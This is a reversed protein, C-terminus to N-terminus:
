IRGLLSSSAGGGFMFGPRFVDGKRLGDYISSSVDLGNERAFRVNPADKQRIQPGAVPAPAARPPPPPPPPAGGGFWSSSAAGGNYVAEARPPLPMPAGGGFWSSSAAGGNYVPQPVRPPAPARQSPDFYRNAKDEIWNAGYYGPTYVGYYGVYYVIKSIFKVIGFGLKAILMVVNFGEKVLWWIGWVLTQLKALIEPSSDRAGELFGPLSLRVQEYLSPIRKFLLEALADKMAKLNLREQLTPNLKRNLDEIRQNLEYIELDLAEGQEENVSSASEKEDDVDVAQKAAATIQQPSMRRTRELSEIQKVENAIKEFLKKHSLEDSSQWLGDVASAAGGFGPLYTQGSAPTSLNLSPWSDDIASAAGGDGSLYGRDSAPTSLKNKRSLERMPGLSDIASAAGGDGSLNGRSSSPISLNKRSLERMPGLSDIVSPRVSLELQLNDNILAREVVPTRESTRNDIHWLTINEIPIGRNVSMFKKIDHFRDCPETGLLIREDNYHVTIQYPKSYNCEIRSEFNFLIQSVPDICEGGTERCWETLCHQHYASGAEGNLLPRYVIENAGFKTKCYPCIRNSLYQPLPM